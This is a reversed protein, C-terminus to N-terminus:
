AGLSALGDAPPSGAQDWVPWGQSALALGILRQPSDVTSLRRLAAFLTNREGGSVFKSHFDHISM